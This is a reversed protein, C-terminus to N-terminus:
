EIKSPVSTSGHKWLLSKILGQVHLQEFIQRDRSPVEPLVVHKYLPARTYVTCACMTVYPLIM